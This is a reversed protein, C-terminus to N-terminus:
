ITSSKMGLSLNSDAISLTGEDVTMFKNMKTKLEIVHENSVRKQNYHVRSQIEADASLDRSTMASGKNLKERLISAPKRMKSQMQSNEANM